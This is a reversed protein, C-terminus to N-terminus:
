SRANCLALCFHVRAGSDVCVSIAEEFSTGTTIIDDILVLERAAGLYCFDRKNAKRYALPKGAYSIPNQARLKGYLARMHTARTFERVLVGTHSYFSRVYDDIGVLGLSRM